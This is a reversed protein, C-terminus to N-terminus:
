RKRHCDGVSSGKRIGLDNIRCLLFPEWGRTVPLARWPRLPQNGVALTNKFRHADRLLMRRREEWLKRDTIDPMSQLALERDRGSRRLIV